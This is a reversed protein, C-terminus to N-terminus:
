PEATRVMEGLRGRLYQVDQLRTRMARFTALRAKEDAHEGIGGASLIDLSASRHDWCSLRIEDGGAHGSILKLDEDMLSTLVVVECALAVLEIRTAEREQATAREKWRGLLSRLAAL